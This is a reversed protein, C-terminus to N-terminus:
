PSGMHSRLLAEAELRNPRPSPSTLPPPPPDQGSLRGGQTQATTKARLVSQLAAGSPSSPGVLPHPGELCHAPRDQGQCRTAGLPQGLPGSSNGRTSIKATHDPGARGEGGASSGPFSLKEGVACSLAWALHAWLSRPCLGGLRGAGASAKRRRQLLGLSKCDSLVLVLQIQTPNKASRLRSKGMQSIPTKIDSESYYHSNEMFCAPTDTGTHTSRHVCLCVCLTVAVSVCVCASVCISVCVCVCM